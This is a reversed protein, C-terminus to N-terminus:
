TGFFCCWGKHSSFIKKEFYAAFPILLLSIKHQHWFHISSKPWFTGFIETKWYFKKKGKALSRSRCMKSIPAFNGKKQYGTCHVGLQSSIKKWSKYPAISNKRLIFHWILYFGILIEFFVKKYVLRLIELGFWFCKICISNGFFIDFDSSGVTWSTQRIL